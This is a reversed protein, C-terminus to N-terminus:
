HSLRRSKSSPRRFHSGFQRSGRRFQHSLRLVSRLIRSFYSKILKALANLKFAFETQVLYMQNKILVQAERLTMQITQRSLHEPKKQWQDHTSTVLGPESEPLSVAHSSFSCTPSLEIVVSEFYIPIKLVIPIVIECENAVGNSISNTNMTNWMQTHTFSVLAICPLYGPSAM